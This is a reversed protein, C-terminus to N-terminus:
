RRPSPPPPPDPRHPSGPDPERLPCGPRRAIQRPVLAAATGPNAQRGTEPTVSRGAALVRIHEPGIGCCGAIIQAGQGVWGNAEHLYEQPSLGTFVWNPPEWDGSEAYVGIPGAYHRRITDIADRATEPKAHM